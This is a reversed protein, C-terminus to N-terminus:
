KLILDNYNKSIFISKISTGNKNGLIKKRLAINLIKPIYFNKYEKFLNKFIKLALDIGILDLTLLIDKDKNLNKYADNLKNRDIKECEILYFFNSIEYFLIKNLAYGTHNSVEILNFKNRKLDNILNLKNTIKNRGLFNYEVIRSSIPNFFHLLKVDSGIKNINISSTNSFINKTVTKRIKNIIKRKTALDEILCEITNENKIEELNKIFNIKGKKDKIGLFNSTVEKQINIKNINVKSRNWINVIYGLNSYLAALRTGMIGCGIINLKKM